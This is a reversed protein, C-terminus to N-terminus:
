PGQVGWQARYARMAELHAPESRESALFEILHDIDAIAVVAVGFEGAVAEVASRGEPGRERRDLGVIVGAPTGGAQRILAMVQRIATGATIVDDVVVVRRGALPAGVLRGGEGHDKEEKRNFSYPVDRGHHEFLAAATACVLPIGKYAPGFLLDFSLGADELAAAYCRGLRALAGGRHFRGADFFYPSVRGSKLVFRGFSLAGVETALRLFERQYERM